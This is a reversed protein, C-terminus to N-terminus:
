VGGGMKEAIMKGIIFVMFGFVLVFIGLTFIDGDFFVYLSNFGFLVACIGVLILFGFLLKGIM